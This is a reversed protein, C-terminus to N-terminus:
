EVYITVTEAGHVGVAVRPICVPQVNITLNTLPRSAPKNESILRDVEKYVEESLERGNLDIELYFTGPIGQPVTQWWETIKSEYGFPELANLIAKRTGKIKHRNFSQKLIARKLSPTWDDRWYDVSYQIALFNLFQDPVSDINILVNLRPEIKFTNSLTEALNYELETSNSPLLKKM